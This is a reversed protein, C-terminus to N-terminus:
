RSKPKGWVWEYEWERFSNEVKKPIKRLEPLTSTGSLPIPMPAAMHDDFVIKEDLRLYKTKKDGSRFFVIPEDHNHFLTEWEPFVRPPEEGLTSLCEGIHEQPPPVVTFVVRKISGAGLIEAVLVYGPKTLSVKASWALELVSKQYQWMWFLETNPVFDKAEDSLLYHSLMGEVETRQTYNLPRRNYEWVYHATVIVVGVTSLLGVVALTWILPLFGLAPISGAAGVLGLAEVALAIALWKKARMERNLERITDIM